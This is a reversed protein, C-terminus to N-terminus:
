YLTLFEDIHRPLYLVQNGRTVTPCSGSLGALHLCEASVRSVRGMDVSKCFEPGTLISKFRAEDM